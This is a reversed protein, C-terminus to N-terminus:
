RPDEGRRRQIALGALTLAILVLSVAAGFPYDRSAGFQQQILNGLVMHRAGGLRDTIVFMGVAPVFTLVAAVTLGPLTQPLVAHRFVRWGSGYLDRAAELLSRDLREVNTYLPLVAFPLANSVMGLVVAFLSPYLARGPDILGLWAALQAPPLGPSLLLEWAYTRVVVNTCLPVTLLGLWLTRWRPSRAAVFFALPYALALAGLTTLTAVLVSRALIWLYDPSWGLIGYGALRRWAGLSPTWLVQGDGGRTCFAVAALVLGPLVLFALLWLAGPGLLLLGRRRLSALSSLEGHRVLPETM